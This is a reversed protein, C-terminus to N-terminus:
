LCRVGTFMIEKWADNEYRFAKVGTRSPGYSFSFFLEAVGDQDVDVYDLFKLRYSRTSRNGITTYTFTTRYGYVGKDLVVIFHRPRQIDSVLSDAIEEPDDYIVVLTPSTGVGSNVVHVDRRYRSLAATGIGSSPAILTPIKALATQLEGSGLPSVANLKPATGSVALEIDSAVGTTLGVPVINCGRISDLQTGAEWMGRKLTIAGATRGNRLAQLDSGTHLYQLDLARWGRPGMRIPRFGHGGITAFPVALRGPGGEEIRFLISPTSALMASDARWVPDSAVALNDDKLAAEIRDCGSLALAALLLPAFATRCVPWRHNTLRTM